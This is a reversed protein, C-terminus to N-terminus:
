EILRNSIAVKILTAINSVNLKNYLNKRHTDVTDISIFLREAIGANTLGETILLLVEKERKTLLPIEDSKKRASKMAQVSEFSLYTRDSVVENLAFLIESKGANKLLYGSAGNEMMKDIYTGENFTSLALVRIGPYNNKILRCLEIGSMDPLSIDMLIVDVTQSRFFHLCDAATCAHGVVNMEPDNQLLSIIGEIVVKHDDVIYVGTM